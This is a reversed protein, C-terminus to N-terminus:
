CHHNVASLHARVKPDNSIDKITDEDFIGSYGRLHDFDYTQKVGAGDLGRRTKNHHISSIWVRHSSFDQQSTDDKMVVIYGNPVVEAGKPVSLIHAANTVSLAALSFSLFTFFGTM